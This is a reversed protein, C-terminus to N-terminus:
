AASQRAPDRARAPHPLITNSVQLRPLMSALQQNRLLPVLPSLSTTIPKGSLAQDPVAHGPRDPIPLSLALM